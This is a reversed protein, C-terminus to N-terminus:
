APRAAAREPLVCISGCRNVAVQPWWPPAVDLGAAVELGSRLGDEHFGYGWHAGCFWLREGGQIEGLRAQAAITAATYQPHEYRFTAIISGAGPERCPNLSMLLLCEQDIGQLRNLWYTVSAKSEGPAASSALYNWSSWVARRKPMLDPDRHLVARNTQYAFAGLVMREAVTPQEIMALAQDAHCALVVQDFRETGGRGDIVEVGGACRRVALVPVGLRIRDAFGESLKKLYAQAGGQVTRWVPRDTLSLLGHNHFFRLFPRAPFDLIGALSASWIAAGMPLLYHRQFADGYGRRALFQRLSAASDREDELFRRADRHFRLIDLLMRWHSRCLLNRRQAFLGALSGSYELRGEDISVGFSMNTPQTPVDFYAFLRTLNPYNRENYVLFGADVPISRGRWDVPVTNAHGGIRAASEYVTVSHRHSLLWACALGSIGAGVIAIRM